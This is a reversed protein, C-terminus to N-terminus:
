AKSLDLIWMGTIAPKHLNLAIKSKRIVVLDNNFVKQSIHSTKSTCKLYNRENNVLNVDARNWLHEITKEYIDNNTLNYFEKGDNEEAGMRKETNFQSEAKLWRLQNFEFVRHIKKTKIRTELLVTLKWFSACM